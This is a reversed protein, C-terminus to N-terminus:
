PLGIVKKLAIKMEAFEEVSIKDVKRLLRKTSFLRIQSLILYRINDNYSIPFYFKQGKRDVSTVPIGLFINRNFTKVTLIPREFNHNKGNEEDGINLGLSAWWIQKKSPTIRKQSNDIKKKKINWEDFNKM